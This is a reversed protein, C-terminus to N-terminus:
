QDKDYSVGFMMGRKGRTLIEFLSALADPGDKAEAPDCLQDILKNVHGNSRVFRIQGREIPGSLTEIRIEKKVKLQDYPRVTLSYGFQKIAGVFDRMIWKSFAVSEFYHNIIPKWKKDFLYHANVVENSSLKDIMADFVVIDIAGDKEYKQMDIGAVVVAADCSHASEEVIPDDYAVCYYNERIQRAEKTSVNIIWEEKFRSSPDGPDNQYVKKFRVSGLQYKRKEIRKIPWIDPVLSTGDDQLLKYIKGKYKKKGDDDKEDILQKLVCKKAVINGAWILSFNPGLGGLVNDLVVTKLDETRDKSKASMEDELDEGRYADPRWTRHILGAIQQKTSRSKIRCSNKLCFDKAEWLWEGKQDGFDQRIRLNNEIEFRIYNARDSAQDETQSGIIMFHSIKFLARRLYDGITLIVSKGTEKPGALFVPEGSVVSYDQLEYHYESYEGPVYHPCYTKLFELVSDRCRRKREERAAPSDDSFPMAEAMMLGLIKEREADFQKLTIPRM